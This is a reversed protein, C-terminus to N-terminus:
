AYLYGLEAHLEEWARKSIWKVAIHVCNNKPEPLIQTFGMLGDHEATKCGKVIEELDAGSVDLVITHAHIAYRL